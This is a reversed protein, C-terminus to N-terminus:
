AMLSVMLVNNLMYTGEISLAERFEKCRHLIGHRKMVVDPTMPVAKSVSQESEPPQTSSKGSGKKKKPTPSKKPM